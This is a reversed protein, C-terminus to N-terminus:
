NIRQKQSPDAAGESFIMARVAQMVVLLDQDSLAAFAEPSLDVARAAAAFGMATESEDDAFEVRLDILEAMSLTRVTLLRVPRGDVTIPCSLRIM